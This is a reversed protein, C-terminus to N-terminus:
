LLPIDGQHKFRYVFNYEHKSLQGDKTAYVKNNFIVPRIDQIKAKGFESSSGFLIFTKREYDYLCFGGGKVSQKDDTQMLESHHTVKGLIIREGEIIFKNLIEM